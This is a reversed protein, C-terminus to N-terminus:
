GAWESRLLGFMVADQVEGLQVYRERCLGERRFGMGELLRLSAANRPDCDAELRRLDLREFAFRIVLPLARKVLGRGWFARGLAFGVEARRNHRDISSLTCTGVVQAALDIGWSYLSGEQFGAHVEALLARADDDCAVLPISMFRVVEPDSFIAALAAVDAATLWRLVLGDGALTPLSDGLELATTVNANRLRARRDRL